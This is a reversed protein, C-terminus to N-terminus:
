SLNAMALQPAKLWQFTTVIYPKFDKVRLCACLFATAERKIKILVPINLIQFRNLWSSTLDQLEM